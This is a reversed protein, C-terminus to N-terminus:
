TTDEGGRKILSDIRNILEEDSVNQLEVPGGDKGTVEQKTPPYLGLLKTEDRLVDFFLREDNKKAAKHRLMARQSLHREMADERLKAAEESMLETAKRIYHQGMRKGVGWNQTAYRLIDPTPTDSLILEYITRVRQEIQAKTAKKAM